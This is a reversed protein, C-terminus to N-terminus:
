HVSVPELDHQRVAVFATDRDYTIGLQTGDAAHISFYKEGAVVNPKVYAIDEIALVSLDHLSIMRREEKLGTDSGRFESQTM